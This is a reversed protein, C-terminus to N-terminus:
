PKQKMAAGVSRPRRATAVDEPFVVVGEANVSPLDPAASPPWPAVITTPPLDVEEAPTETALTVDSAAAFQRTPERPSKPVAIAASGTSNTANSSCLAPRGEPRRTHLAPNVGYTFAAAACGLAAFWVAAVVTPAMQKKAPAM